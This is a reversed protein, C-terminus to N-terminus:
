KTLYDIQAQQQYFDKIADIKKLQIKLSIEEINLVDDFNLSATQYTKMLIQKAKQTQTLNKQQTEFTIRAAKQTQISEELAAQLENKKDSKELEIKEKELNNQRSISRYKQTFIPISLSIMPMLMDKGNHHSYMNPSETMVTYGLGFGLQPGSEKSNLKEADDVLKKMHHFHMLEPNHSIPYLNSTSELVEPSISNIKPLSLSDPILLHAENNKRNLLNTFLSKEALFEHNLIKKQETLENQRIQLQLVDVASAKDVEVAKLALQEYTNLISIISDTVRQKAKLAYLRYYSQSVDLTLKRKAINTMINVMQAQTNQYNKRAGITGFWPIDQQISFQAIEIGMLTESEGLFYSGSINTNPLGGVEHTKEKEIKYEQQLAEIKPSNSKAESVYNELIQANVNLFPLISIMGLLLYKPQNQTIQITFQTM